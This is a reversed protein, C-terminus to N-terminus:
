NQDAGAKLRTQLPIISVSGFGENDFQHRQACVVAVPMGQDIAPEFTWKGVATEVEDAFRGSSASSFPHSTARLTEVSTAAGSDTVAFRIDVTGVQGAMHERRPYEPLRGDLLVPGSETRPTCSPIEARKVKKGATDSDFYLPRKPTDTACAAVALLLAAFLLAVPRVPDPM